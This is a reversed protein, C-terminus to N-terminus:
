KQGLTKPKTFRDILPVACNMLLIAFMVGEPYSALERILVTLMGCGLGFIIQGITTTPSSVYDTAMFFAGLFVGGSLVAMLPDKGFLFSCLYVSGIFMAPIRWSIVRIAILFLGGVLLLLASTEGLSGSTNGFFMASYMAIKTKFHDLVASMGSESLMGLPTAGTIGDVHPRAWITMAVPFSAVLFARAALAPNFINSGLGGFALKVIAIAFFSGIIPVYLPASPPIIMALLLGTIIASGDSATVKMRFIKQLGFETLVAMGISSLILLLAHMGFLYVGYGAAPLLSFVVAFMIKKITIGSRV